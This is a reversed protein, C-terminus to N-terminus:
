ITDMGKIEHEQPWIDELRQGFKVKVKYARKPILALIIVMM